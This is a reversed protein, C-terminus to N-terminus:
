RGSFIGHQIEGGEVISGAHIYWKGSLVCEWWGRGYFM